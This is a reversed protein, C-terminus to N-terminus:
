NGLMMLRSTLAPGVILGIIFFLISLFIGVIASSVFYHGFVAFARELYNKSILMTRPLAAEVAEALDYKGPAQTQASLGAQLIQNEVELNAVRQELQTLYNVLDAQSSFQAPPPNNM